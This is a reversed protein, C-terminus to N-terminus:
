NYLGMLQFHMFNNKPDMYKRKVFFHFIILYLVIVIALFPTVLQWNM